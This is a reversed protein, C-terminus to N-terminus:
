AAKRRYPQEARSVPRLRKLLLSISALYCWSESAATTHEYDKSLRRSRGLWALSREVVWRRPQVAFGTQDPAKSLIELTIGYREQLWPGLEGTYGGDAWVHALCPWRHAADDFLWRAVEREGWAASAVIVALVHGETDVLVHRKRGSM